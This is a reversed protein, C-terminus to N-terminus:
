AEFIVVGRKAIEDRLAPTAESLAVLDLPRLTMPEEEVDVAFRRWDPLNSEPVDFALDFDSLGHEKGAARSGYLIVRRPHVREIAAEILRRITIPLGGPVLDERIMSEPYCIVLDVSRSTREAPKPAM